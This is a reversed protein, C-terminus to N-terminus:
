LEQWTISKMLLGEKGRLPTDNGNKAKITKPANSMFPVGGSRITKTVEGAFESAVRGRLKSGDKGELVVKKTVDILKKKIESKQNELTSVLFSRQPIGQKESGFEHTMAVTMLSTGDPYTKDELVGVVVHGKLDKIRKALGEIGGNIKKHEFKM